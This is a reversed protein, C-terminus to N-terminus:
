TPINAVSMESYLSIIYKITKMFEIYTEEFNREETKFFLGQGQLTVEKKRLVKKGKLALYYGKKGRRIQVIEENNKFEYYLYPYETINYEEKITRNFTINDLVELRTRDINTRYRM